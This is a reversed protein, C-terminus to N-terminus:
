QGAVNLYNVIQSLQENSRGTNGVIAVVGGELDMATQLQGQGIADAIMAIDNGAALLQSVDALGIGRSTFHNDVISMPGQGALVLARGEVVTVVNDAIRASPRGDQRLMDFPGLIVVPVMTSPPLAHPLVIGGRWGPRVPEGNDNFPANETIRNREI